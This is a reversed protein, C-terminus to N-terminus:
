FELHNMSRIQQLTIPPKSRRPDGADVGRYSSGAPPPQQAVLSAALFMALLSRLNKKTM